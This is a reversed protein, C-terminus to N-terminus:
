PRRPAKQHTLRCKKEGLTVRLKQRPARAKRPAKTLEPWHPPIIACPRAPLTDICVMLGPRSHPDTVMAHCIAVQKDDRFAVAPLGARTAQIADEVVKAFNSSDGHKKNPPVVTVSLSYLGDVPWEEGRLRMAAVAEQCALRIREQYLQQAPHTYSHGAKARLARKWPVPVGPIDFRLIM